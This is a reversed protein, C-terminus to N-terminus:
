FSKIKVFLKSNLQAGSGMEKYIAEKLDIVEGLKFGMDQLDTSSMHSFAHTGMISSLTTKYANNSPILLLLSRASTLSTWRPDKAITQQYLALLFPQRELLCLDQPNCLLLTHFTKIHELTILFFLM